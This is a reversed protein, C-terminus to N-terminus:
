QEERVIVEKFGVGGLRAAISNVDEARVNRLVIRYLNEFPEWQPNFGATSLRDFVDVANKAVKFSGVQIRYSRGNVVPGGL